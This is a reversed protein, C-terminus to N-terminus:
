YSVVNISQEVTFQRPTMKQAAMMLRKKQNGKNNFIKFGGVKYLLQSQPQKLDGHPSNGCFFLFSDIMHLPALLKTGQCLEAYVLISVPCSVAPNFKLGSEKYPYVM